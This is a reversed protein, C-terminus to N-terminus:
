GDIPEEMFRFRALGSYSRRSVRVRIARGGALDISGQGAAIARIHRSPAEERSLCAGQTSANGPILLVDDVQIDVGRTGWSEDVVLLDHQVDFGAIARRISLLKVRHLREATTLSVARMSFQLNRVLTSFGVGLDQAVIFTDLASARSASIARRAFAADVAIKPM